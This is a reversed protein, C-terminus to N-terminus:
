HSAREKGNYVRVYCNLHFRLLNISDQDEKIELIHRAATFREQGVQVPAQLLLTDYGSDEDEDPDIYHDFQIVLVGGTGDNITVLYNRPSYREEWEKNLRLYYYDKAVLGEDLIVCQGDYMNRLATDSLISTM